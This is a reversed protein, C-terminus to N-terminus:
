WFRTQRVTYTGDCPTCRVDCVDEADGRGHKMKNYNMKLPTMCRARTECFMKNLSFDYFHALSTATKVAVAVGNHCGLVLRWIYALDWARWLWCVCLARGRSALRKSITHRLTRSRFAVLMAVAPPHQSGLHAGGQRLCHARKRKKPTGAVDGPGSRHQPTRIFRVCWEVVGVADVNVSKWGTTKGAGDLVLTRGCKVM